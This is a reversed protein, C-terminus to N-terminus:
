GPDYRGPQDELAAAAEPADDYVPAPVPDDGLPQPEIPAQDRSADSRAEDILRSVLGPRPRRHGPEIEPQPDAMLRCLAQLAEFRDPHRSRQLAAM